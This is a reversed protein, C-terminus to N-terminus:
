LVTAYHDSERHIVIHKFCHNSRSFEESSLAVVHDEDNSRAGCAGQGTHYWTALEPDAPHKRHCVRSSMGQGQNAAVAWRPFVVSLSFITALAFRCASFMKIEFKTLASHLRSDQSLIHQDAPPLLPFSHRHLSHPTSPRNPRPPRTTQPAKAPHLHLLFHLVFKHARSAPHSPRHLRSNSRHVNAIEAFNQTTRLYIKPLNGNRPKFSCAPPVRTVLGKPPGSDSTRLAPPGILTPLLIMIKHGNSDAEACLRM